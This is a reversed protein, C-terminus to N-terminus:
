TGGYCYFTPVEMVIIPVLNGGYYYFTPVEMVIIPVLYVGMIISPLYRWVVKFAELRLNVGSLFKVLVQRLVPVKEPM